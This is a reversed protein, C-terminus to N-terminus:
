ECFLINRFTALVDDLALAALEAALRTANCTECPCFCASEAGHGKLFRHFTRVSEEVRADEVKGFLMQARWSYFCNPNLLCHGQRFPPIPKVPGGLLAHVYSPHACKPAAQLLNRIGYGLNQDFPYHENQFILVRSSATLPTVGIHKLWHLNFDAWADCFPNCRGAKSKNGWKNYAPIMRIFNVMALGHKKVFNKDLSKVSSLLRDADALCYVDRLGGASSQKMVEEATHQFSFAHGTAFVAMHSPGENPLPDIGFFVGRVNTPLLINELRFIQTSWKPPFIPTTNTNGAQLDLIVKLLEQLLTYAHDYIEWDEPFHRLLMYLALNRIRPPASIESTEAFRASRAFDHLRPKSYSLIRDVTREAAHRLIINTALVVPDSCYSGIPDPVREETLYWIIFADHSSHSADLDLVSM